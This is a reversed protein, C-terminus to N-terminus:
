VSQGARRRRMGAIGLLGLSVLALSAPEPVSTGPTGGGPGCVGPVTSTCKSAAVSYIKMFDNGQTWGGGYSQNYASVLWWSSGASNPNVRSDMTDVVLNSTNAVLEWGASVMSALAAGVGPLVPASDGTYRFLSIDTDNNPSSGTWGVNIGTLVVSSSFNLLLAETNGLGTFVGSSNTKPGNDFAHNPSSSGDSSMTLGSGGSYGLPAANWKAGSAFGSIGYYNLGTAGGSTASADFTGGNAAYVGSFSSLTPDGVSGTQTVASSGTFQYTSAGNANAMSLGAVLAILAFHPLGFTKMKTGKARRVAAIEFAKVWSLLKPALPFFRHLEVAQSLKKFQNPLIQLFFRCAPHTPM